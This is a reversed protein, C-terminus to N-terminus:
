KGRVAEEQAPSIEIEDAAPFALASSALLLGMLVLCSKSMMGM